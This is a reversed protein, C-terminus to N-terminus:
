SREPCACGPGHVWFGLGTQYCAPLDDDDPGTEWTMFGTKRFGARKLQRVTAPWTIFERVQWWAIQWRPAEQPAPCGSSCTRDAM